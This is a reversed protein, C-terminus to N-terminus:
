EFHYEVIIACLASVINTVVGVNGLCEIAKVSLEDASFSIGAPITAQFPFASRPTPAANSASIDQTFDDELQVTAAVAAGNDVNIADIVAKM